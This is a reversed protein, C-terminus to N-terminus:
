GERSNLVITVPGDNILKVEMMAGFQGMKVSINEDRLKKCYQGYMDKAMEPSAANLYSPRRGKQTDACLTFQSVVLMEGSVDQISHNMKNKDDKFIRLGITKKVMYNLDELKDNKEVGLLILFGQDIASIEKGDVTVSASSVRQIVARM